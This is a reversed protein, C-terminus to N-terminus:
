RKLLIFNNLIIAQIISPTKINDGIIPPINNIKNNPNISIFEIKSVAPM